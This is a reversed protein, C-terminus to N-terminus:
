TGLAHAMDVAEAKLQVSGAVIRVRQEVIEQDGMAPLADDGRVALQM